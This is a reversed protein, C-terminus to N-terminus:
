KYRKRLKTNTDALIEKIKDDITAEWLTSNWKLAQEVVLSVKPDVLWGVINNYSSTRLRIANWGIWNWAEDQPTAPNDGVGNQEIFTIQMDDANDVIAVHGYVWMQWFVISWRPAVKWKSYNVKTYWLSKGVFNKFRDYANWTTGFSIWHCDLAYQKALDVCQFWYRNDVDIKQWLWKDKFEQHFM